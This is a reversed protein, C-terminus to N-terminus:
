PIRNMFMSTDIGTIETYVSTTFISSHGLWKQLVNLPVGSLISKVAFTHRFMHPHMRFKLDKEIKKLYIFASQRKIKFLKETSNKPINFDLYYQMIVDRLEPHLPLTRLIRTRKKLTILTITNLDLNIDKPAIALAEDIRAGTRLLIKFLLYYKKHTTIERKTTSNQIKESIWSFIRELQDDSFFEIPINQTKSQIALNKSIPIINNMNNLM